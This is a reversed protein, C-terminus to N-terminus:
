STQLNLTTQHRYDERRKAFSAQAEGIKQNAESQANEIKNNAESQAANAKQQDDSAKNCAVSFMM